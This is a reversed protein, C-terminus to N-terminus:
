VIPTSKGPYRCSSKPNGLIVRAAPEGAAADVAPVSVVVPLDPDLTESLARSPEWFGGGRQLSERAIVRAGQSVTVTASAARSQQSVALKMNFRWCAYGAVDFVANGGSPIAYAITWRGKVERGQGTQELDARAVAPASPDPNSAAADYFENWVPWEYAHAQITRTTTRRGNGAGKVIEIRYTGGEAPAFRKSFRGKSSLKASGISRRTQARTHLNTVYIRVKKGKLRAHGAKVRGTIATTRNGGTSSDLDMKRNDVSAGISFGKSRKAAEAPSLFALSMAVAALLVLVKRVTVV